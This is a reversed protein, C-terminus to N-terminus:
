TRSKSAKGVRELVGRVEARARSLLATKAKAEDDEDHTLGADANARRLQMFQEIKVAVGLSKSAMGTLFGRDGRDERSDISREGAADMEEIAHAVAMDQIRRLERDTDDM